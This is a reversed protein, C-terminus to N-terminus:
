MMPCSMMRGINLRFMVYQSVQPVNSPENEALTVRPM